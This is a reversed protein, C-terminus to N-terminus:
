HRGGKTFVVSCDIQRLSVPAIPEEAGRADGVDKVAGDLVKGVLTGEIDCGDVQWEEITKVWSALSLESHCHTIVQFEM